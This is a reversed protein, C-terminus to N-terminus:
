DFRLLGGHDERGDVIEVDRDRFARGILSNLHMSQQEALARNGSHYSSQLKSVSEQIERALAPAASNTAQEALVLQSALGSSYLDKRLVNIMRGCEADDSFDKARAAQELDRRIKMAQTSDM